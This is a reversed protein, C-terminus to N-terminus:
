APTTLVDIQLVRTWLMDDPIDLAEAAERPDVELTVPAVDNCFRAAMRTALVVSPPPGAVWIEESDSRGGTPDEIESPGGGIITVSAAVRPVPELEELAHLRAASMVDGSLDGPVIKCESPLM